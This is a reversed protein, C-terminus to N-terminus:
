EFIVGLRAVPNQVRVRPTRGAEDGRPLAAVIVDTKLNALVALRTFNSERIKGVMRIIKSTRAAAPYANSPPKAYHRM